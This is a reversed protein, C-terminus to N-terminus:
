EGLQAQLKALDTQAEARRAKLDEIFEKASVQQEPTEMLYFNAEEKAIADDLLKVRGELSTVREKIKAADATVVPEAVTTDTEAIANAKSEMTITKGKVTLETGTAESLARVPIYTSGNIIVADAIKKGNQEVSFLGTVKAGILSSSAAYGISSGLLLAAAAIGIIKKKM